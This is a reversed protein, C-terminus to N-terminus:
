LQDVPEPRALEWWRLIMPLLLGGVVFAAPLGAAWSVFLFNAGVGYIAVVWVLWLVAGVFAPGVLARLMFYLPVMWVEEDAQKAAVLRISHAVVELLPLGLYWLAAFGGVFAGINVTRFWAVLYGPLDSQGLAVFDFAVYNLLAPVTLVGLAVRFALLAQERFLPDPAPHSRTTPAQYPNANM